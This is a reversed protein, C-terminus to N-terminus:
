GSGVDVVLLRCDGATTTTHASAAAVLVCQGAAVRVADVGSAPQSGSRVACSGAVGILVMARPPADAPLLTRENDSAHLRRERVSFFATSVLARDCPLSRQPAPQLPRDWSTAPPPPHDLVCALAQEVHLARGQRGWDYLRFTTDSPTQVEAVLVGAGLAHVTGSPLLHMQGPVAPRAQLLSPLTGSEIAARVQARTPPSALSENWGILLSSRPEADLVYWCETKVHATRHTRSYEPSPHAQVSLHERADLLKVLLPFCEREAAPTSGLMRQLDIELLEHVTRGRHPGSAVRTRVASGGGGSPDTAPLDALEWSEGIATGPPVPKGFRELRHGGWVKPMLTPELLLPPLHTHM